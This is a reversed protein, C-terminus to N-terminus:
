MEMNTGLYATAGAKKAEDMSMNAIKVDIAEAIKENVLEEVKELEEDTM